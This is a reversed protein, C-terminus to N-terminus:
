CVPHPSWLSETYGMSCRKKCAKGGFHWIGGTEEKGLRRYYDVDTGHKDVM